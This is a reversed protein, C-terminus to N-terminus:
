AATSTPSRRARAYPSGPRNRLHKTLRDDHCLMAARVYLIAEGEHNDNWFKETGKVRQNIEKILSEIMASSVPLGARRYRPYDMRSQNNKLYTRTTVLTQYREEETTPLQALAQDIATLVDQVRGQWTWTAWQQFTQWAPEEDLHIARSAQHLYELPHVFDIIPEFDPFYQEQITWNYSQGDGLFARRQATFFGCADAEAAMMPGFAHSDCLSSLCTRSVMTPQWAETEQINVQGDSANTPGGQPVSDFLQSLHERNAFCRPLDPHPDSAYTHSEMRFFGANKTERWHADQVGPASTVARTQIRGGDCAVTALTIPEKPQTPQSPLPRQQYAATQQDIMDALERGVMTTLNNIHRGSIKVETVTALVKAAM